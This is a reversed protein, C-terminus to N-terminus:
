SPFSKRQPLHPLLHPLIKTRERQAWETMKTYRSQRRLILFAISHKPVTSILFVTYSRYALRIIYNCVHLM